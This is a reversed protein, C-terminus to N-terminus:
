YTVVRPLKKAQAIWDAVQKHTPLKRVQNKKENTVVMKALLNTPDRQALEPISDVGAAELLEAYQKQVGKIRYLDVHNTWRLIQKHGIGASKEIKKRGAPTAGEKLLAGTTVIGAAKLKEAFVEGIGEVDIIASMAIHRM